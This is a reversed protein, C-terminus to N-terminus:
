EALHNEIAYRTLEASNKMQMKELIRVRYTSVTKVSLCLESAIQKVTKGAGTMRLVQFERDSLAEHPHSATEAALGTALKEALFASVYRGGALAKKVAGALEEPAAEKTMYGAAGAKLVRVAFQDEPHISLVLVPLGPRLRKVEKLIEPGSRGPMTVDMLLLDWKGKSIQDLVETGNTAEGFAAKPFEDALIQQLGRRVVAHDDAILIRM